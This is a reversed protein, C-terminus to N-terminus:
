GSAARVRFLNEPARMAIAQQETTGSSVKGTIGDFPMRGPLHMMKPCLITDQM